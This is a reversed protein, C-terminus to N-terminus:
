YLKLEEEIEKIRKNIEEVNGGPRRSLWYSADMPQQHALLRERQQMVNHLEVYYNEISLLQCKLMAKESELIIKPNSYDIGVM